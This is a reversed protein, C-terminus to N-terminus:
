RVDTRGDLGPTWTWLGQAGRMPAPPDLVVVDDLRWHWCGPVDWPTRDETDAGALTAVAVIASTVIPHEATDKTVGGRVCYLFDAHGWNDADTTQKWNAFSAMRALADIGEGRAVAGKRGGVHAGAHIALRRGILHRPPHWDRNEVRKDLFCIAWAWEPWLTIAPFADAM